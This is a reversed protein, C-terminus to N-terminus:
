GVPMRVLGTLKGGGLYAAISNDARRSDMKIETPITSYRGKFLRVKLRYVATKHGKVDEIIRSSIGNRYYAFDAVYVIGCYLEFRPQLVLGRIAREKEFMKLECYRAGEARSAFRIGDITIPKAKYKHPKKLLKAQEPNALM